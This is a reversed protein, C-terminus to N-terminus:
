PVVYKDRRMPNVIVMVTGGESLDWTSVLKLFVTAGDDIWVLALSQFDSM